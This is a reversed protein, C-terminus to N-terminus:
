SLPTGASSETAPAPDFFIAHRSAEGVLDQELEPHPEVFEIAVLRSCWSDRHRADIGVRVVRGPIHVEGHKESVRFRLTLEDGVDFHSPTGFLIGSASGDRSMGVRDRKKASDVRIPFCIRHREHRRRDEQM